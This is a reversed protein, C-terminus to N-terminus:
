RRSGNLRGGTLVALVSPCLRRLLMFLLFCAAAVAVPAIFMYCWAGFASTGAYLLSALLGDIGGLPSFSGFTVMHLAYVFFSSESLRAGLPSPERVSLAYALSLAAFSAALYFLQQFQQVFPVDALWVVPVWLALAAPILAGRRKYAWLPLDIRRVAFFGGLSFFLLASNSFGRWGNGIGLVFLLALVPLVLAPMRRVAVFVLPSIVCMLMLDRVYWLPVNEPYFLQLSFGLWNEAGANYTVSDWFWGLVPLADPNRAPNDAGALPASICLLNFILYPILLTHVRSRLKRGCAKWDWDELGRFFLYGSMLFFCPVAMFGLQTLATAAPSFVPGAHLAEPHVHMALVMLVLPFRIGALARSSRESLM